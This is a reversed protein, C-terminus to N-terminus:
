SSKPGLLIRSTLTRKLVGLRTPIQVENSQVNSHLSNIVSYIRDRLAHWRDLSLSHDQGLLMLNIMGLISIMSSDSNLTLLDGKLEHLQDHIIRWDTLHISKKFLSEIDILKQAIDYPTCALEESAISMTEDTADFGASDGFEAPPFRKLWLPALLENVNERRIPAKPLFGHARTNYITIDSKSDNASRVLVLMRRELKSPLRQRINDVCQSGSIYEHNSSEDIVDLNEDVIILVYDNEHNQMFNVVFDEFGKIEDTGDGIITSHDTPIDLFEFFKAL